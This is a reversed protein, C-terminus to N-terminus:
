PSQDPAIRQPACSASPPTDAASPPAPHSRAASNPASKLSRNSPDPLHARSSAPAPRPCEPASQRPDNEPATGASCPAYQPTAAATDALQRRHIQAVVLLHHQLHCRTSCRIRCGAVSSPRRCPPHPSAPPSALHLRLGRRRLCVCLEFAASSACCRFAGAFDFCRSFCSSASSSSPASACVATFCAACFGCQWYGSPACDCPQLQSAHASSGSAPCGSRPARYRCRMSARAPPLRSHPRAASDRARRQPIPPFACPVSRGIQDPLLAYHLRRVLLGLPRRACIDILAHHAHAPRMNAPQIRIAPQVQAAPHALNRAFIHARGHLPRARHLPRRVALNQMQQRPLENQVILRSDEIRHAHHARPKLHIQM